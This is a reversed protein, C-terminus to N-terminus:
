THHSHNAEVLINKHSVAQFFQFRSIVDKSTTLYHTYSFTSKQVYPVSKNTYWKHTFSLNEKSHISLSNINVKFLFVFEESYM